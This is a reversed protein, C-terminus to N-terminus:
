ASAQSRAVKQFLGAARVQPRAAPRVAKANMMQPNKLLQM